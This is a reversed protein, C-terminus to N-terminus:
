FLLIDFFGKREKDSRSIKMIDEELYTYKSLHKYLRERESSSNYFSVTQRDIYIYIYIYIQPQLIYRSCGQLPALSSLHTDQYVDFSTGTTYHNDDYSISVAIRTWIRSSVSQM